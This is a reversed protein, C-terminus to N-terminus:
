ILKLNISVGYHDSLDMINSFKKFSDYINFYFPTSMSIAKSKILKDSKFMHLNCLEYNVNNSLVFMDLLENEENKDLDRRIVWDNKNYCTWKVYNNLFNMKCIEMNFVEEINEKEKTYFNINWDGGIIINDNENLNLSNKMWKKINKMQNTREEQSFTDLHTNFVNLVKQSKSDYICAYNVGKLSMANFIQGPKFILMDSKIIREKSFIVCGGNMLPVYKKDVRKTKYIFGKEKMIKKMKKYVKNDFLEQFMVVDFKDLHNMRGIIQTRKIQKDNFIFRPRCYFNYTLIKM